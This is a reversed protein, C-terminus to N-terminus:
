RKIPKLEQVVRMTNESTSLIRKLRALTRPNRYYLRKDMRYLSRLIKCVVQLAAKVPFSIFQRLSNQGHETTLQSSSQIRESQIENYLHFQPIDRVVDLMRHLIYCSQPSPRKTIKRDLDHLSRAGWKVVFIAWPIIQYSTITDCHLKSIPLLPFPM